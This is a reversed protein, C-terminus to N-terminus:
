AFRVDADLMRQIQEQRRIGMLPKLKKALAVAESRRTLWAGWIPKRGNKRHPGLLNCGMLVAARAAIDKDTSSVKVAWVRQTRTGEAAPINHNEYFM